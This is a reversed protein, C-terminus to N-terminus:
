SSCSVEISDLNPPPASAYSEFEPQEDFPKSLINLLKTVESFDKKQSREIALQALHNRLVFKPNVQDMFSHRLSDDSSEGQLRELYDTFWQDIAERNVFEDRLANENIPTDTKFKGLRRFFSTFDVRSDHMAQLLREILAIDGDQETTFGLKRRFLSQWTQAYMIPFEELASRLLDQAQKEDHRLEMLPIM